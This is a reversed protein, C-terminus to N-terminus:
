DARTIRMNTRMTADGGQYAIGTVNVNELTYDGANPGGTATFPSSAAPPVVVDFGPGTVHLRRPAYITLDKEISCETETAIAFPPEPFSYAEGGATMFYWLRVGPETPNTKNGIAGVNELMIWAGAGGYFGPQCGYRLRVLTGDPIAPQVPGIAVKNNMAGVEFGDATLTFAGELDGDIAVGGACDSGSLLSLDLLEDPVACDDVGGSTTSPDSSTSADASTSADGSSADSSASGGSSGSSASADSSTPASASSTSAAASSASSTGESATGAGDDGACAVLAVALLVLGPTSRAPARHM